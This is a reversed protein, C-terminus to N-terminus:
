KETADIWGNKVCCELIAVGLRLPKALPIKVTLLMISSETEGKNVKSLQDQALKYLVTM